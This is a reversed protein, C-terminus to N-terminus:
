ERGRRRGIFELPFRGLGRFDRQLVQTRATFVPADHVVSLVFVVAVVVVGVRRRNKAPSL